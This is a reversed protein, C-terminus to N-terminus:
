RREGLRKMSGIAQHDCYVGTTSLYGIWDWGHATIVEAYHQLVTDGHKIPAISCLLHTYQKLDEILRGDPFDYAKIGLREMEKRKPSHRSTAAVEWGQEILSKALAAASYGFGFIFLRRTESM